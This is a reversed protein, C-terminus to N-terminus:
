CVKFTKRMGFLSSFKTTLSGILCLAIKCVQFSSIMENVKREFM